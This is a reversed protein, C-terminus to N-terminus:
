VRHLSTVLDEHMLIAQIGLESAVQKIATQFDAFPVRLDGIDVILLMTFYDGVLTQSIDLIDGGQDAIATAIRAVIGPANRGTTTIVARRRARRRESSLYSSCYDASPPLGAPGDGLTTGPTTGPATGAGLADLVERTVAEMADASSAGLRSVVQEVVAAALAATDGGHTAVASPRREIRLGRAAARERALPTLEAGEELPITGGDPIAVLEAHTIIRAM